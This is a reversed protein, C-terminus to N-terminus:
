SRRRKTSPSQRDFRTAIASEPPSHTSADEMSTCNIDRPFAVTFLPFISQCSLRPPRDAMREIKSVDPWFGCLQPHLMSSTEGSLPTFTCGPKGGNDRERLPLFFESTDIVIIPGCWIRTSHKYIFIKPRIYTPGCLNTGYIFYM